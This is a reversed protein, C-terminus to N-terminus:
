TMLANRCRSVSCRLQCIFVGPQFGQSTSLRQNGVLYSHEQPSSPPCVTRQRICFAIVYLHAQLPDSTGQRYANSFDSTTGTLVSDPFREEVCRTQMAVMDLDAPGYTYTVGCAENQRGRKLDDICRCTPAEAGGHLEWIPFRPALRIIDGVLQLDALDLFPGQM